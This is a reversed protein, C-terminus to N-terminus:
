TQDSMAVGFKNISKGSVWTGCFTFKAVYRLKGSQAPPEAWQRNPLREFCRQNRSFRADKMEGELVGVGGTVYEFCSKM